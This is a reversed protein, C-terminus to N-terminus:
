DAVAGEATAVVGLGDLLVIKGPEALDARVARRLYRLAVSPTPARAAGRAVDNELQRTLGEVRIGSAAAPDWWAAGAARRRRPTSAARQAEYTTRILRALEKFGDEGLLKRLKPYSDATAQDRSM